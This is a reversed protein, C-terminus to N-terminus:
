RTSPHLQLGPPQHLEQAPSGPRRTATPRDPGPPRRKAAASPWRIWQGCTQNAVVFLVWTSTPTPKANGKPHRDPIPGRRGIPVVFVCTLVFGRFAAISPRDASSGRDKRVYPCYTKKGANGAAGASNASRAGPLGCATTPVGGKPLFEDWCTRRPGAKGGSLAAASGGAAACPSSALTEGRGRPSPCTTLAYVSFDGM